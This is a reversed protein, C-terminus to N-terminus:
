LYDSEAQNSLEQFLKKVKDKVNDNVETFHKRIQNPRPSVAKKTSFNDAIIKSLDTKSIEDEPTIVECVLNFFYSLEPSSLNTKIRNPLIPENDSLAKNDHLAHQELIDIANILIGHQIQYMYHIKHNEYSSYHPYNEKLFKIPMGNFEECGIYIYKYNPKIKIEFQEELLNKTLKFEKHLNKYIVKRSNSSPLKFPLQQIEHRYKKLSNELHRKYHNLKYFTNYHTLYKFSCCKLCCRTIEIDIKCLDEIFKYTFM